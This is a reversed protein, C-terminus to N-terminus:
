MSWVMLVDCVSYSGANLWQVVTHSQCVFEKVSLDQYLYQRGVQRHAQRNNTQLGDPSVTSDTEVHVRKIKQLVFVFLGVYSGILDVHDRYKERM